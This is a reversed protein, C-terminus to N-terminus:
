KRRRVALGALALGVMTLSAPEPVCATFYQNGAFNQFNIAGSGNFNGAGDGGLNGQPPALGGLFQNSWYNHGQNNQGVM